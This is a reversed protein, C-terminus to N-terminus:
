PAFAADNGGAADIGQAFTDIAGPYDIACVDPPRFSSSTLLIAVVIVCILNSM